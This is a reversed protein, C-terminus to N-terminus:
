NNDAEAYKDVFCLASQKEEAKRKLVHDLFAKLKVCTARIPLWPNFGHSNRYDADVVPPGTAFFAQAQTMAASFKAVLKSYFSNDAHVDAL